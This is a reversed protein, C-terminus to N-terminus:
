RAVGGQRDTQKKVKEYLDKWMEFSKLAIMRDGERKEPNQSDHEFGKYLALLGTQLTNMDDKTLKIKM